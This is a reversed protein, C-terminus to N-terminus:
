SHAARRLRRGSEPSDTAKGGSARAVAGNGEPITPRKGPAGMEREVRFAPRESPLRGYDFSRQAASTPSGIAWSWPHAIGIKFNSPEAYCGPVPACPTAMAVHRNFSIQTLRPSGGRNIVRIARLYGMDHELSNVYAFSGRKSLHPKAVCRDGALLGMSAANYALLIAELDRINSILQWAM